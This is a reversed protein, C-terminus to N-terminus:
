QPPADRFRQHMLLHFPAKPPAPLREFALKGRMCAWVRTNRDAVLKEVAGDAAIVVVFSFPLADAATVGTTCERFIRQYPGGFAPLLTGGHWDRLAGEDALAAERAAAFGAHGMGQASATAAAVCLWAFGLPLFTQKM